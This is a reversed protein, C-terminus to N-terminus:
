NVVSCQLVSLEKPPLSEPEEQENEVDFIGQITGHKRKDKQRHKQKWKVRSVAKFNWREFRKSVEFL